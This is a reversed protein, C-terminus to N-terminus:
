APAAATPGALQLVCSSSICTEGGAINCITGCSGCNDDDISLITCVGSCVAAAAHLRRLHVRQLDAARQLPDHDRRRGARPQLRPARRDPREPLQQRRQPKWGPIHTTLYTARGRPRTRAARPPQCYATSMSSRSPGDVPQLHDGPLALRQPEGDGVAAHQRQGALPPRLGDVGAISLFPMNWGGGSPPPRRRLDPRQHLVHRLGLRDRYRTTPATRRDRAERHPLELQRQVVPRLEFLREVLHPQQHPDRHPRQGVLRGRDRGHGRRPAVTGLLGSDIGAGTPTGCVNACAGATTRSRDHHRRVHHQLRHRVRLRLGRRHM